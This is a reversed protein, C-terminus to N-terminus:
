NLKQQAIMDAYNVLARAIVNATANKLIDSDVYPSNICSFIVRTRTLERRYIIMLTIFVKTFIIM